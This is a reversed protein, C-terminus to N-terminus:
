MAHCEACNVPGSGGEEHCGKCQSHLADVLKPADEGEADHCESCAAPTDGENELNHHCDACEIGYGDESLHETHDFLVNGGTNKLMIRIPNEPAKKAFAVYCVVGILLFAAALCYAVTRLAKNDM